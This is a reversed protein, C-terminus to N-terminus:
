GITADLVLEFMEVSVRRGRYEPPPTMGDLIRHGQEADDSTDFFICDVITNTDRNALTLVRTALKGLQAEVSDGDQGAAEVQEKASAIATDMDEAPIEFRAVRVIMM